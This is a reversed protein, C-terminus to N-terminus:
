KPQSVAFRSLRQDSVDHALKDFFGLVILHPFNMGAVSCEALLDENEHTNM